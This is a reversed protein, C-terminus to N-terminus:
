ITKHWAKTSTNLKRAEIKGIGTAQWNRIVKRNRNGAQKEM